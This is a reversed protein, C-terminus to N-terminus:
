AEARLASLEDEIEALFPADPDFERLAEADETWLRLREEVTTGLRKGVRHRDELAVKGWDRMNALRDAAYIIM